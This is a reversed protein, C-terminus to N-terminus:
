GLNEGLLAELKSWADEAAKADYGPRQDCFFGHDAGPYVELEFRKGLAGLKARIADVQDLPIFGDNEGFFLQLPAEIADAQDLLGAIGGGYFPAAAAIRDPVACALLFTLRGGMCFGTVGVREGRVGADNELQDLLAGMDATFKADDVKQMLGIARDLQDYGVKNDPLERYYVDPAVAIYGLDAIRETVAEIHPVLGFAEMLVVVAPHPGGADPAARFAPMRGDPTEIEIRETRAM